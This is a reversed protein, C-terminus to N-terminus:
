VDKMFTHKHLIDITNIINILKVYNISYKDCIQSLQEREHDFHIIGKYSRMNPEFNIVPSMAHGFPLQLKVQKCVETVNDTDVLVSFYTSDCSKDTFDTTLMKIIINIISRTHFHLLFPYITLTYPEITVPHFPSSVVENNWLWTTPCHKSYHSHSISYQNFISSRYMSKVHHNSYLNHSQLVDFIDCDGSMDQFNEIMAWHFSIQNIKPPVTDLFECITDYGNLYLYEDMDIALVWDYDVSSILTNAHQLTHDGKYSHTVITVNPNIINLEPQNEEFLIYIHSIGLQLHYNIFHQIYINEYLARVVIAVSTM